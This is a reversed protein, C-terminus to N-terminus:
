RRIRSERPHLAIFCSAVNNRERKNKEDRIKAPEFHISAVLNEDGKVEAATESSKEIYASM